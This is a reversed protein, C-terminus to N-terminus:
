YVKIKLIITIGQLPSISVNNTPSLRINVDAQKSVKILLCLLKIEPMVM